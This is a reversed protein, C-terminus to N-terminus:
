QIFKFTAFVQDLFSSPASETVVIFYNGPHIVILKHVSNAGQAPQTVEVAKKGGITINTRTIASQDAVYKSLNATVWDDIRVDENVAAIKLVAAQEPTSLLTRENEAIMAAGGAPDAPILAKAIQNVSGYATHDAPYWFEFGYNINRYRVWGAPVNPSPNASAPAQSSPTVSPCAAFACSPPVRSVYSGDPCLKADMACATGSMPASKSSLGKVPIGPAFPCAQYECTGPVKAIYSGDPCQKVEITCTFRDLFIKSQQIYQALIGFSALIIGLLLMVPALEVSAQGRRPWFDSIKM